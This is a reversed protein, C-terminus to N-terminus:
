RVARRLEKLFFEELANVDKFEYMEKLEASPDTKGSVKRAFEVIKGAGGRSILLSVLFYSQAYFVDRKSEPYTQTKFLEHLPFLNDRGLEVELVRLHRRRRFDPEMWVAVGENLWLPLSVGYGVVMQYIIHTLEHPLITNFAQPSTQFLIIRHDELKAGRRKLVSTGGSWEATSMDGKYSERDPYIEITCKKDWEAHKSEYDFYRLIASAYHEAFVAMRTGAYVNKHRIIFHGTEMEQWETGDTGTLRTDVVLIEALNGWNKIVDKHAFKRLAGLEKPAGRAKSGLSKRYYEEAKKFLKEIRYAEALAFLAFQSDPLAGLVSKIEKKARKLKGALLDDMALKVKTFTWPKEVRMLLEPGYEVAKDYQRAASKIDMLRLFGEASKMYAEALKPYVTKRRGPAISLARELSRIADGFKGTALQSVGKEEAIRAQELMKNLLAIETHAATSDPNFEELGKQAEAAQRLNKRELCHRIFSAYAKEIKSRLRDSSPDKELAKKYYRIAEGFSGLSIIHDGEKELYKKENERIIKKIKSRKIRMTGFPVEITIEKSDSHVIKGRISNGNKLIIVDALVPALSIFVLVAAILLTKRM